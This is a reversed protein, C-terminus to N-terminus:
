PKFDLCVPSILKQPKYMYIFGGTKHSIELHLPKQGWIAWLNSSPIKKRFFLYQLKAQKAQVKQQEKTAGKNGVQGDPTEKCTHTILSVNEKKILCLDKKVKEKKLLLQTYLNFLVRKKKIFSECLFLNTKKEKNNKKTTLHTFSRFFDFFFLTKMVRERKYLFFSWYFNFCFARKYNKFDLLPFFFLLLLWQPLTWIKNKKSELRSFLFFHKEKFTLDLLFKIKNLSVMERLFNSSLSLRYLMFTTSRYPNLLAQKNNFSFYDGPKAKRKCSYIKQGNILLSGNRILQRAGAITKSFGARFVCVDLRSELLTFMNDEFFGPITLAKKSEKIIDKKTLQGYLLAIKKREHLLKKARSIPKQNKFIQPVISTKLSEHDYLYRCNKYSSEDNVFLPKAQVASETADSVLTEIKNIPKKKNEQNKYFLSEQKKKQVKINLVFLGELNQGFNNYSFSKGEKKEQFLLGKHKEYLLKQQKLLIRSLNKDDLNKQLFRQDKLSLPKKPSINQPCAGSLFMRRIRDSLYMYM